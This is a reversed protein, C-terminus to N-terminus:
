RCVGSVAAGGPLDQVLDEAAADKGAHLGLIHRHVNARRDRQHVTCIYSRTPASSSAPTCVAGEQVGCRAAVFGQADFALRARTAQRQQGAGMKYAPQSRHM